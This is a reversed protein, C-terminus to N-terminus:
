LSGIPPSPGLTIDSLESYRFFFFFDHPAYTPDSVRRRWAGTAKKGKKEQTSTEIGKMVEKM